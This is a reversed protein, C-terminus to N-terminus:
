EYGSLNLDQELCLPWFVIGQGVARGQIRWIFSYGRRRASEM